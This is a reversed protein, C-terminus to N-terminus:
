IWYDHDKKFFEDNNRNIWSKIMMTVMYRLGKNEFRRSTTYVTENYIKFKSPKIKSSLHYDEAFKDENIFGGLRDFENKEFLMFGGIAFPTTLSSAKQIFDFIKYVYNYKGDNTRMRTTALHKKSVSFDGLMISLTNPNELFIDADMFLIYPTKAIEAGRNRGSAPYGGEIIELEVNKESNSLILDRTFGNDDSCDAIIVRTGSIENQLNILDLTRKIIAGENKCPIIITIKDKLM